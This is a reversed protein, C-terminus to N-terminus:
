NHERLWEAAEDAVSTALYAQLRDGVSRQQRRWRSVAVILKVAVWMSFGVAALILWIM